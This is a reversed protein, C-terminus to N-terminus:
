NMARAHKVQLWIYFHIKIKTRLVELGNSVRKGIGGSPRPNFGIRWSGAKAICGGMKYTPYTPVDIINAEAKAAITVPYTLLIQAM